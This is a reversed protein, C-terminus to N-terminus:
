DKLSNIEPDSNWFPFLNPFILTDLAAALMVGLAYMLIDLPDFTRGFIPVGQWQALEVSLGVSFVLIAKVWWHRLPPLNESSLCLLFYMALPLLIDMMYGNVFVPFPGAYQPGTVFHLLAIPVAIGVILTVKKRRQSLAESDITSLRAEGKM